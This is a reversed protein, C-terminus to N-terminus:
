TLLRGTIRTPRVRIVHRRPGAAWATGALREELRQEEMLSLREARGSVVVSWGTRRVPDIADVEIAVIDRREAAQLKPGPGSRILVDEGDLAYNVPVIDPVGARAVYAFRAVSQDRLLQYCQHRTLAHLAGPEDPADDLDTTLALRDVVALAVTVTAERANTLAGMTPRLLASLATM